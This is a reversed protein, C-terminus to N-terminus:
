GIFLFTSPYLLEKIRGIQVENTMASLERYSYAYNFNEAWSGHGIFFRDKIADLSILFDSRGGLLVGLDSSAQAKYKAADIPSLFSLFSESTFIIKLVYQLLFITFTSVIIILITSFQIKQLKHRFYEFRKTKALFYIILAILYLGGLSRASYILSFYIIIFSLPILFLNKITRIENTTALLLILSGGAGWKWPNDIFVESSAIYKDILIGLVVGSFYLPFLKNRDYFINLLFLVSAMLFVPPLIGKFLSLYVTGNYLDSLLQSLFWIVSLFFLTKYPKPTYYSAGHIILYGFALLEGIYIEGGLTLKISSILGFFFFIVQSSIMDSKLAPENINALINRHLM